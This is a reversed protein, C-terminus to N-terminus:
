FPQKLTDFHHSLLICSESTQLPIPIPATVSCTWECNFIKNYKQNTKYVWEPHIQIYGNWM